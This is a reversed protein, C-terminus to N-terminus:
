SLERYLERKETRFLRHRKETTSLRNDTKNSPRRKVKRAFEGHRKTRTDLASNERHPITTKQIETAAYKQLIIKHNKSIIKPFNETQININIQWVIYILKKLKLHFLGSVSLWRWGWLGFFPMIKWLILLIIRFFPCLKQVFFFDEWFLCLKGCFYFFLELFSCWKRM